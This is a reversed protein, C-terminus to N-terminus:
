APWQTATAPRTMGDAYPSPKRDQKLGRLDPALEPAVTTRSIRDIDFSGCASDESAALEGCGCAAGPM